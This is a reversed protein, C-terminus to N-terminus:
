RGAAGGRARAKHPLRVGLIEAAAHIVNRETRLEELGTAEEGLQAEKEVLAQALEGARGRLWGAVVQRDPPVRRAPARHPWQPM